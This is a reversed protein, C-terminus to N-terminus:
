DQPLSSFVQDRTLSLHYMPLATNPDGDKLKKLKRDLYDKPASMTPHIGEETVVVLYKEVAQDSVFVDMFELGKMAVHHNQALTIQFRLHIPKDEPTPQLCLWSDFALFNKELPRYYICAVPAEIQGKSVVEEPSAPLVLRKTAEEAYESYVYNVTPTTNKCRIPFLNIVGGERLVQHVRAEFFMGAASNIQEDNRLTDYFTRIQDTRDNFVMKCIKEFILLSSIKRESITRDSPSPTTTVLLHSNGQAGLPNRLQKTLEAPHLKSIELDVLREYDNTGDSFMFLNRLSAGFTIHMNFLVSESM